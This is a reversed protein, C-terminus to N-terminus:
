LLERVHLFKKWSQQKSYSQQRGGRKRLDHDANSRGSWNDFCATGGRPGTKDPNGSVVAPIAAMVDPNRASPITRGMRACVPHGMTPNVPVATVYQNFAV